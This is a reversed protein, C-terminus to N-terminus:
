PGVVKIIRSGVIDALSSGFYGCILGGLPSQATPWNLYEALPPFLPGIEPYGLFLGAGLAVAVGTEAWSSALYGYMTTPSGPTRHSVVVQKLTHALLGLLLAVFALFFDM